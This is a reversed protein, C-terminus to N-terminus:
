NNKSVFFVEICWAVALDIVVSNEFARSCNCVAITFDFSVMPKRPKRLSTYASFTKQSKCIGGFNLFVMMKVLSFIFM